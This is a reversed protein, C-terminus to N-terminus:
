EEYRFRVVCCVFAVLLLRVSPPVNRQWGLFLLDASESYKSHKELTPQLLEVSLISSKIVALYIVRTMQM